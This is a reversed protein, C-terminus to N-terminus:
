EHRAIMNLDQLVEQATQYRNHHNAHVMGDLIAALWPDFNPLGSRWKLSMKSDRELRDPHIGTAGEIAIMGAAYLDSNVQPAGQNQEWPSYGCTGVAVTRNDQIGSNSSLHKAVGFDILILKGDSQRRIINEPKLDRHIVHHLHVFDLVPLLESLFDIIHAEDWGIWCEAMEASLSQGEIFEQVLYFEADQEFYALLRPIQDHTGLQELTQAETAFLRRAIVLEEAGFWTALKKVVCPPTGPRHTDEALYTQGFGGSGMKSRIRYRGGLLLDAESEHDRSSPEVRPFAPIAPEEVTQLKGSHARSTPKSSPVESVTIPADLHALDKLRRNEAELARIRSDSDQLITKSLHSRFYRRYLECSPTAANGHLAVLGLSALKYSQIAELEVPHEAYIVQSFASKLAPAQHLRLSLDQLHAGYIGDPAIASQLIDELSAEDSHLAYFALALRYPNGGIKDLLPMLQAAGLDGEAWHLGYRL